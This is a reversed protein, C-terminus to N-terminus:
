GETAFAVVNASYRREALSFRGGCTILRLVPASTAGYVEETPFADSPFAVVRDVLFRVQSGDERAVLVEDGPALEALRAFVAPGRYSV